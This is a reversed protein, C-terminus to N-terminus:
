INDIGVKSSDYDFNSFNDYIIEGESDTSVMDVVVNLMVMKLLPNPGRKQTWRGPLLLVKNGSNKDVHAALQHAHKLQHRIKQLM